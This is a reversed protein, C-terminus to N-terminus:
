GNQKSRDKNVIEDFKSASNDCKLKQYDGNIIKYLTYKGVSNRTVTYADIGEFVYTLLITENKSIKM